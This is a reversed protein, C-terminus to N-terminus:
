SQACAPLLMANFGNFTHKNRAPLSPQLIMWRWGTGLMVSRMEKVPLTGCLCPAINEEESM